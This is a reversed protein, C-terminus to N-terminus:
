ETPLGLEKWRGFGGAMSVPETLVGLYALTKAATMSRVGSRCSLVIPGRSGKSTRARLEDLHLGLESLPFNDAGPIRGDKTLEWPDRVDIWAHRGALEARQPALEECKMEKVKPGGIPAAGMSCCAAVAVPSDPLAPKAAQNMALTADVDPSNGAGEVPKLAAAYAKGDGHKLAANHRREHGITSFLVDQYGHGPLVVTTDPLTMLKQKVSDFLRAADSGRFDARALGGAFLTDGTLVLGPSDLIATRDTPLKSDTWRLHLAISDPTHGPVALVKFRLNGVEVVDGDKLSKHPRECKTAASMWLPIGKGIWGISDSLHDAHTHTDLVAALKLGYDALAKQYVASRGVKPDVLLAQRTSPCGILHALCGSDNFTKVVVDSM